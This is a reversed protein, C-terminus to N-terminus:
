GAVRVEYERVDVQRGDRDYQAVALRLSSGDAGIGRPTAIRVPLRAATEYVEVFGGQDVALWRAVPLAELWVAAVPEGATSTCNALTLRPDALVGDRLKGVASSCWTGREDVAAAAADCAYLRLRSPHAFTLSRGFAGVREVALTPPRADDFRAVCEALEPTRVRIVRVSTAVASGVHGLRQPLPPPRTGDVLTEPVPSTGGDGCAASTLAVAVM